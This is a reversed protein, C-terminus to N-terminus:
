QKTLSGVQVHPLIHSALQARSLRIGACDAARARRGILRPCRVTGVYEQSLESTAVDKM